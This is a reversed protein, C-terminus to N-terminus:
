NEVQCCSFQRFFRSSMESLILVRGSLKNQHILPMCLISKPQTAVIYADNKFEGQKSAENLLLTKETQVVHNIISAPLRPQTKERKSSNIPLSQLIFIEDNEASGEAEILWNASEQEIEPQSPLILFSKQAGASELVTEMLNTLMEQRLKSVM